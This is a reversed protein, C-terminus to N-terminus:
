PCVGPYAREHMSLGMPLGEGDHVLGQIPGRKCPCARQYAKERMSFGM